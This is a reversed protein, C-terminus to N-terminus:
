RLATLTWARAASGRRRHGGRHAREGEGEQGESRSGVDGFSESLSPTCFSRFWGLKMLDQPQFERDPRVPISWDRLAV